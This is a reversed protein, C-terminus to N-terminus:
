NGGDTPDTPTTTGGLISRITEFNGTGDWKLSDEERTLGPWMEELRGQERNARALPQPHSSLWDPMIDTGDSLSEFMQFLDIMAWPNYGADHAFVLGLDDADTEQDQSYSTNLVFNTVYDVVERSLGNGLFLDGVLGIGLAYELRAVGHRHAVHGVEHGLVAALEAENSVENILGRTLYVYGGPVAFANVEDTDVVFFQYTLDDRVSMSSTQLQSGLQNVWSQVTSDTILPYQAIVEQHVEAGIQQETATNIIWDSGEVGCGGFLVLVLLAVLNTTRQRM